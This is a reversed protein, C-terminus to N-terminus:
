NEALARMVESYVEGMTVNFKSAAESVSDYEPKIKNIDDFTCIKIKIEGFRTPVLKFIRRMVFRKSTRIRLGIAGTHRFILKAIERSKSADCMVTLMYAPRNKKMFVPTYYVDAAGAEFIEKTALGLAEGTSDDICTELVEISDGHELPEVTEGLFARLINPHEFDKKGCGIGTKEVILEPMDGFASSIGAVIAAGTPTVMEGFASSIRFPIRNLRLIEATAPVPVPLLSHACLVTGSGDVLPSCIIIDPKLEDICVAAGVIDAISDAAGVEHFHVESAPLGHVSGEAQAVINFIKKSLLKVNLSLGSADIIKEIDALNRHLHEHKDVHGLIVNFDTAMIGGKNKKSAELSFDDLGLTSLSSSLREFSVGLDLMAGVFMDGSVGSSCQLYLTKM